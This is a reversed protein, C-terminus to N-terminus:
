LAILIAAGITLLRATEFHRSFSRGELLWGLSMASAAIAAAFIIKASMTFGDHNALFYLTALAFIM